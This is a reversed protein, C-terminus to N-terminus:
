FPPKEGPAAPKKDSPEMKLIKTKASTVAEGDDNTWNDEYQRIGLKLEKGIFDKALDPLQKPIKM